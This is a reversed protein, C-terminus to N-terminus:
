PLRYAVLQAAQGTQDAGNGNVAMVIYQKGKHLYTMPLGTQPGSPLTTQWLEKGTLKDYAHLKPQGRSGEGSFLLSGTVLLGAHSPSGTAQMDNVGVKELLDRIKKPTDGNPIQWIITGTQMNYATIRGYPPKFLPLGSELKPVSGTMHYDSYNPDNKQVPINPALGIVAPNTQSPVFLLQNEIDAAASSWNAGGGFGPLTLTGKNITSVLSPPTFLPGKTYNSIAAVAEARLAPTFDILYEEKVGQFEFAPPLSPIPQTLSTREGPVETQPVPTEVIPWIPEGNIRNFVYAYGQKTVQIVAPIKKGNVGKLNMLLPHAPNDYDWIDHHVLQFHWLREGNEVSVAVLSSSFLNDGHRAGGYVDNTPAEISLYLIGAEDDASFPGWIGTNGTYESSGNLWSENGYEGSRPITHFIWRRKGTRVDFAIVDGKVNAKNVRGMAPGVIVTDKVVVVPSSNGIRGVADDFFDLDLESMMDVIGQNGFNSIPVGTHANLSVLQFGPTAFIIREDGNNDTWYSVGRHVKRPAKEFREGEDLRYLWLTEGTGADAAVVIRREEMSFYLIGNVMLPTTQSSSQPSPTLSDARWTWALELQDVNSSNIQTLSSYHTSGNEAGYARWDTDTGNQAIVSSTTCITTAMMLTNLKALMKDFESIFKTM